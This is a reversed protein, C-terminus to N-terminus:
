RTEGKRLQNQLPPCPPTPEGKGGQFSPPPTHHAVVVKKYPRRHHHRVEGAGSTRWRFITTACCTLLRAMAARVPPTERLAKALGRRAAGDNTRRQFITTACSM